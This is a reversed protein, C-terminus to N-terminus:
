VAAGDSLSIYGHFIQFPCASGCAKWPDRYAPLIQAHVIGNRRVPHHHTYGQHIPPSILMAGFGAALALMSKLAKVRIWSKKNEAILPLCAHGDQSICSALLVPFPLIGSAFMSVFVMHPGSEPILGTLVAIVIMLGTNGRLWTEMDIRTSLIGFIALVGFTWAFIVPLHRKIVHGWVHEKIFHMIEHGDEHGEHHHGHDHCDCDHLEYNDDSCRDAGLDLLKGKKQLAKIVLDTIIGTVLGFLFLGGMILIAKSPFMTLMLFAEDGTTAILAATLAGFGVMRHSYLSVGAFGGLCGPIMGLGSAVAVQGIKHNELRKFLHGHSVVNFIEILTMIFIVLLCIQLSETLADLLVHPISQPVQGAVDAHIHLPTITM